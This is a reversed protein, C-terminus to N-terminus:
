HQHHVAGAASAAPGGVRLNGVPRRSTAGGTKRTQQSTIQGIMEATM